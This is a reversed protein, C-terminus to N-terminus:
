FQFNCHCTVWLFNPNNNFNYYISIFEHFITIYIYIYIYLFNLITLQGHLLVRLQENKENVNIHKIYVYSHYSGDFHGSNNLSFQLHM